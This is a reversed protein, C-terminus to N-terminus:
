YLMYRLIVYRKTYFIDWYLMDRLIVYRLIVFRKTYWIEWYLM